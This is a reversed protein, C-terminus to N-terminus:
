LEVEGLPSAIRACLRAEAPDDVGVITVAERAGIRQLVDALWDPYAHHLTLELLRCGTDPMRTAPHFDTQWQICLPFFGGAGLRGDEAMAVLWRLEDRQAAVIEGTSIASREALLALDTTNVAWTLLRPSDELSRIVAPDDLGFWRPRAPPTMEPNVAIIELYANGGLSMVRNHTGMMEHRGGPPVDVGLVSRVHEGGQDLTAAAVVIHDLRTTPM